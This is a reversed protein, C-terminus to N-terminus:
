ETAAKAMASFMKNMGDPNPNFGHRGFVQEAVWEGTNYAFWVDGNDDQYALAKLPLDIALLRNKNMAGTGAAPNGFIVVITPAMQKGFENAAAAHDFRGFVKWKKEEVFAEAKEITKEVSHASKVRVMTDLSSASAPAVSLCGFYVSIILFRAFRM